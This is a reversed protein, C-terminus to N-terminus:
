GGSVSRIMTQSALGYDRIDLFWYGGLLVPEAEAIELRQSFLPGDLVLSHYEGNEGCPDVDARAVIDDLFTGDIRRGVWDKGLLDAQTSVVIAEFGAGIFDALVQKPDRGFLPEVLDVGLEDCVRTAWELCHQLHIDGFVVSTVGDGLGRRVNDKFEREYTDPDTEQQLLPRAVAKSQLRIVDALIGHFRVRGSDRAVTNALFRVDYGALIAYHAALCSDKGGSWTAVAGTM